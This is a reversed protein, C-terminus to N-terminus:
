KDDPQRYEHEEAGAHAPHAVVKDLIIIPSM